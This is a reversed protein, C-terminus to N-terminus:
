LGLVKRTARVKVSQFILLLKKKPDKDALLKKQLNWLAAGNVASRFIFNQMM